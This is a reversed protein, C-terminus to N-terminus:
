AEFRLRSAGVQLEDGNQLPLSGSVRQGNVFTGNSSGLDSVAWGGAGPEVRAHRRSITTDQALALTNDADRGISLPESLDFTAGQVPGAVGVLRPIGTPSRPVNPATAIRGAGLPAAVGSAAPGAAPLESLSPLPPLPAPAPKLHGTAPSVGDQPMEVGMQKLADQVTLGRNKLYRFGYFLFGAFLLIGVVGPVWSNAAPEVPAPAAQPMPVVIVQPTPAAAPVVPSASASTSPSSSAVPLGAPAPSAGPSAPAGPSATKTGATGASKSAAGSAPTAAAKPSASAVPAPSAPVVAAPSAAPGPPAAQQAWGATGAMLVACLAAIQVGTRNGPKAWGETM